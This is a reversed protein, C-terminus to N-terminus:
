FRKFQVSKQERCGARFGVAGQLCYPDELDRQYEASLVSNLPSQLLRCSFM